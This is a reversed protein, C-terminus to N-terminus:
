HWDHLYRLGTHEQLSLSCVCGEPLLLLCLTWFTGSDPVPSCSLLWPGHLLISNVSTTLAVEYLARLVRPITQIKIRNGHSAPGHNKETPQLIICINYNCVYNYYVCLMSNIWFACNLLQSQQSALCNPKKGWFMLSSKLSFNRKSSLESANMFNEHIHESTNM